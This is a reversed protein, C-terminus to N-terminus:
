EERLVDVLRSRRLSVGAALSAALAAALVLGVLLSVGLVPVTVGGPAITFLPRLIQVFLLAM